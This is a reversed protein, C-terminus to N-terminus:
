FVNEAEMAQLANKRKISEEVEEMGMLHLHPYFYTAESLHREITKKIEAGDIGLRHLHRIMSRTANNYGRSEALIRLYAEHEFTENILGALFDKDKNM